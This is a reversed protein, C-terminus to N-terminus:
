PSTELQNSCNDNIYKQVKAREQDRMETTFIVSEEGEEQNKILPKDSNLLKLNENAMECNKKMIAANKKTIEEPSLKKVDPPEPSEEVMESPEPSLIIFQGTSSQIEQSCEATPTQTYLVNGDADQCQYMKANAVTTIFSLLLFLKKM